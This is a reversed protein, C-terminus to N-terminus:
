TIAIYTFVLLHFYFYVMHIEMITFCLGRSLCQKVFGFFNIAKDVSLSNYKNKLQTSQM